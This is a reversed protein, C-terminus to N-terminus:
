LMHGSQGCIYLISIGKAIRIEHFACELLYVLFHEISFYEKFKETKMVTQKSGKFKFSM